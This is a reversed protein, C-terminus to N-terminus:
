RCGNGINEDRPLHVKLVKFNPTSNELGIAVLGNFFCTALCTVRSEVDISCLLEGSEVNFLQLFDPRSIVCKDDSIFKYRDFPSFSTLTSIRKGKNVDLVDHVDGYTSVVLFQDTPSFMASEFMASVNKQWVPTTGDQLQLSRFSHTLLKCQSNCTVVRKHLVPITSVVGCRTDLVKVDVERVVAVREESIPILQEVGPLNTWQKIRESLDYHWLEVTSERTSILVGERVPCLHSLPLDKLKIEANLKGSLVNRATVSEDDVVYVTKGDLSLAIGTAKSSEARGSKKVDKTTDVMEIQSRRCRLLRQEDLVFVLHNDPHNSPILDGFLFGRDNFCELDELVHSVDLSSVKLSFTDQTNTNVSLFFSEKKEETVHCCILFQLDPSFKLMGCVVPTTIQALNGFGDTVDVLSISGPSHSIALLRGDGSWAFSLINEDRAIRDIESGTELSWLILCKSNEFCNTLIKTKDGSISCVSFRCYSEPFLSTLHGDMTYAQSLIGPLVLQETPHFVVSRFFSFVDNSPLRRLGGRQYRYCTNYLKTVTVQHSWVRSCTLLSWLQLMGDECECVMYDLQPSVDLCAVVSSCKYQAVVGGSQMEKHTYEMYPIEGYKNQLLNSAEVSLFKWGKNLITQLFTQLSTHRRDSFRYRFRRLLCLLIELISRTDEPLMTSIEQNELWLVDEIALTNNLCTKAYVIELDIIYAKTLEDLKSRERIFDEHLMHHVGHYLAYRESTSFQINDVSGRKMNDLEEACLAALKRHGENEVVIFEHEGYCSVDTLWDEVSKHFVNLSDDRIPLLASVSDLARRVKRWALLSNSSPVLVKSVFDVPLPERSASIASLLDLFHETQVGAEMLLERELRKFYFHYVSSIGSPLSGDLDGAHFVSPNETIFLILFHAYLMWKESKLVLREISEEVNELEVVHELRKRFFVRIDELNEEDTPKLELPKLHKLKETIAVAPRTTVFLLVWSPLKCFQNAIVDLLENRGRYESEDLGDIVILVNRGPDGVVSLPEDFLLAFLEEVDMCNLDTSLHRALQEVLAQKYEPLVRSLHFALSQIMLTNNRYRAHNHRFFHSVVLRGTEQMKKCIVASLVSKGMGANGSFVMVRNPSSRDDFWDQVREVAWERTGPQFTKLHFETVRGFELCALNRLVEDTRNKDRTDEGPESTHRESDETDQGPDSTHRGSDEADQGPDSTHRGSDETDLGPDSTHRGSDETDLDPDSTHRGSDETDQGPDPTHRGRETTDKGLESTHRGGDETDQGPDSILRGSDKTDQGPESTHRTSDKTGQGGDPTHREDDNADEGPELTHRGSHKTEQGPVSTGRGSDKTDQGQDSTHRGSYGTDQGPDSSHRGSDKSYQGLDLTHRGSDKTDQGPDSTHRTSDKTDQGTDPTHREDDKSDEGPESTHRGSDKADQGTVSRGRGSDRTDQGQDSTHRGSYATDQGPDSSHRGSDKSYQGTDSTHRGSDKTNEDVSTTHRESNNTDQGPVLTHSRSDKSNEGPDSAHRGNEKTGQGPDSTHRESDKSYQAPDSTHRGSGKLHQDPDPTHRESDRTDQGTDSTHRGSDKSDEVASTTHRESDNTDQGPVSTHRTSDKLFQVPDLTHRGNDKTDHGPESTNRGSDKLYQGPDSTHRGSDKTDQGPESTNRESDKSYQDPDSTHRGSDKSYQGPHSTHRGSDKSYQGLRSTHRGNGKTDQGPESTNRGSDKSYQGSDPTHRRGDKTDQGPDSTDRSSDDTNQGAVTTHRGSDKTHEGPDSTHRGRDKTDQGPNSANRGSDNSYKGPDPTHRGRDNTKVQSQHIDEVTKQTKAQTQHIDQVTTPTKAQTHHIDKVTHQTKVQTQHIDEVTKQTKAQTQHIDEVTTQTKAQVPPLEKVIMQTKAQSQHVAEVTKQISAQTQHIDEVTKQTSAQTQHIDEMAKQTKAQTQHIDEVTKQTSAQTQHIDEM